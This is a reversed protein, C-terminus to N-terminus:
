GRRVTRVASRIDDAERLKRLMAYRSHDAVYGTQARAFLSLEYYLRSLDNEEPPILCEFGLRENRCLLGGDTRRLYIPVKDGVYKTLRKALNEAGVAELPAAYGCEVCAFIRGSVLNRRTKKGCSPCTFYLGSSSVEIPAPLGSDPLRYALAACLRGYEEPSIPASDRALSAGDNQGGGTELVVQAKWKAAKGVCSKALKHADGGKIDGSAMIKGGSFVAYRLGGRIGRAIGMVSRSEADEPCAFNVLLYYGGDRKLLRATRLLAPQKLARELDNRERAGFALPVVIYNRKGTRVPLAPMGPAICRLSLKGEGDAAKERLSANMLTLKAYFRSTFEDYLLCYDRTLAYRGFYLPHLRGARSILGRCRREYEGRRMLGADFSAALGLEAEAASEKDIYILPYGTKRVRAANLYAASRAAFELKLADKFPQAGFRNLDGADTAAMDILARRGVPDGKRALEEIASRNKDMLYQLARSYSLLARDMLEMKHASPRYIGLMLTKFAM